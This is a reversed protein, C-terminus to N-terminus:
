LYRIGFSVYAREKLLDQEDVEAIMSSLRWSDTMVTLGYTGRMVDSPARFSTSDAHRAQRALRFIIGLNIRQATRDQMELKAMTGLCGKIDVSLYSFWHDSTSVPIRYVITINHNFTYAFTYSIHRFALPFPSLHPLVRSADADEMKGTHSFISQSSLRIFSVM